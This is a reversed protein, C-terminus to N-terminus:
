PTEASSTGSAVVPAPVAKPVSRKSPASSTATGGKWSAGGGVDDVTAREFENAAEDPSEDSSNSPQRGYRQHFVGVRGSAMQYSSTTVIAVLSFCCSADETGTSGRPKPLCEWPRAASYACSCPQPSSM